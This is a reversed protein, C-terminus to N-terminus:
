RTEKYFIHSGEQTLRVVNPAKTWSPYEPMWDAHYLNAGMAYNTRREFADKYALLAKQVADQSLDMKAVRIRNHDDWGSFQKSALVTGVITGDSNYKTERRDRIVESVMTM